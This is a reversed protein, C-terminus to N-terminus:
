IDLSINKTFVIGRRQLIPKEAVIEIVEVEWGWKDKGAWAWPSDISVMHRDSDRYFEAKSQYKFCNVFKIIAVVRAKFKKDKGPTEVLYMEKNLYAEPIPYTRTEVTKLGELILRSIPAQINIGPINKFNM